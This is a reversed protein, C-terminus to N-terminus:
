LKKVCAASLLSENVPKISSPTARAMLSEENMAELVEQWDEEPPLCYNGLEDQDPPLVVLAKSFSMVDVKISEAKSSYTRLFQVVVVQGKGILYPNEQLYTKAYNDALEETDFVKLASYNWQNYLNDSNCRLVAYM